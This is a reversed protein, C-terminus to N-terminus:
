KSGNCKRTEREDVHEHLSSQSVAYILEIRYHQVHINSFTYHQIFIKEYKETISASMVRHEIRFNWYYKTHTPSVNFQVRSWIAKRFDLVFQTLMFMNEAAYSSPAKMSVVAASYQVHLNAM